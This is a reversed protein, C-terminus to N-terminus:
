RCTLSGNTNCIYHGKAEAQLFEVQKWFHFIMTEKESKNM